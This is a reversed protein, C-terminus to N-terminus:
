LELHDLGYSKQFNDDKIAQVLEAMLLQADAPFIRPVFSDNHASDLGELPTKASTFEHTDSDGDNETSKRRITQQM